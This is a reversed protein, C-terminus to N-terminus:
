LNLLACYGAYTKLDDNEGRNDECFLEQEGFDWFLGFNANVQEGEIPYVYFGGGDTAFEWNKTQFCSEDAVCNTSISGPIEIDLNEWVKVANSCDGNRLKCVKWAQKLSNLMTIAEAARAKFVAKQYQPVAVAALIGIILVVVLLEILTFAAKSCFRSQIANGKM